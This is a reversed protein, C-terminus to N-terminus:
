AVESSNKAISGNSFYKSPIDSKSIHGVLIANGDLHRHLQSSFNRPNKAGVLM